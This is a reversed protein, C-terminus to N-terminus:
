KMGLHKCVARLFDYQNGIPPLTLRLRKSRYVKKQPLRALFAGSLPPISFVMFIIGNNTAAHADTRDASDLQIFAHADPVLM